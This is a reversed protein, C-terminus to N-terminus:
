TDVGGDQAWCPSTHFPLSREAESAFTTADMLVEPRQAEAMLLPAAVDGAVLIM